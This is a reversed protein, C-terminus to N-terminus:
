FNLRFTALNLALDSSTVKADSESNKNSDMTYSFGAGYLLNKALPYLALLSLNHSMGSVKSESVTNAATDTTKSNAVYLTPAYYLELQTDGVSHYYTVYPMNPLLGGSEGLQVAM